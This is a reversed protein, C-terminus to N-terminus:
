PLTISDTLLLARDITTRLRPEVSSLKCIFPMSVFLHNAIEPVERARHSATGELNALSGSSLADFLCFLFVYKILSVFIYQYILYRTNKLCYSDINMEM